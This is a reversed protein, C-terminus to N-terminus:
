FLDAHGFFIEKNPDKQMSHLIEVAKKKTQADFYILMNRSFVYDFKELKTFEDEFINLVKFETLKKVEENLHYKDENLTFYKKAYKM